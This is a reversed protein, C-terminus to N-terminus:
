ARDEALPPLGLADRAWATEEATAPGLESRMEALTAVLEDQAAKTEMASDVWASVSPSRGAAVDEEAVALVEPRVTVTVRSRM